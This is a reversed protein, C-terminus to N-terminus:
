WVSLTHAFSICVSQTPTRCFAFQSSECLHASKPLLKPRPQPLDSLPAAQRLFLKRLFCGNRQIEEIEDLPALTARGKVTEFAKGFGKLLRHGLKKKWGLVPCSLPWGLGSVKTVTNEEASKKQEPV